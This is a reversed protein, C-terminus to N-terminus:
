RIKLRIKKELTYLQFRIDQFRSSTPKSVIKSFEELVRIAEQARKMNRIFLDKVSQANKRHIVSRKGVDCQSEREEILAKSSVPLAHICSTIEHRLAKLKATNVKSNLLFRTIEECVRLAERARNSNADVIRLIKKDM